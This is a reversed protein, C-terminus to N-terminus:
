VLGTKETQRRLQGCSAEIDPGLKRRVTVNIGQQKLIAIFRKMDEPTSPKLRSEPVDNLPILNVHSGTGKLKEALLHAHRVTDNVGNIMAYEYSIRRGTRDFYRGCAALVADVGYRRNVPMIRSRTEDDPAHLSVSLTLQLNYDSLKDISEVLGCTSLSVHRMGINLGNEDNVLRLFRMVSDFNDLPEGIGMMVINSIQRGSDMQAFIVQDLIESAALNRVRGGITSACFACGMRCGVQCSVCITNGHEYSMVVSEVSNGDSLRWLYKITGDVASVQKKIIEPRTIYFADSLKQRLAKSLNTMGDFGTVGSHLWRFIQGARYASEGMGLVAQTLEEPLLSKIDTKLSQTEDQM